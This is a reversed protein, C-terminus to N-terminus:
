RERVLRQVGTAVARRRHRTFAMCLGQITGAKQHVLQQVAGPRALWLLGVEALGMMAGAIYFIWMSKFVSILLFGGGVLIASASLVVRIDYKAFLRGIFPASLAEVFYLVTVYFAWTATEVGLVEPVVAQFASWTSFVLASCGLTIMIGTLIVLMHKVGMKDTYTAEGM